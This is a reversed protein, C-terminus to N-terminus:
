TSIAHSKTLVISAVEDSAVEFITFVGGIPALLASTSDCERGLWPRTVFGFNNEIQIPCLHLSLCSKM